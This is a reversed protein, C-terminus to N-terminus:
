RAISEEGARNRGMAERDIRDTATLLLQLLPERRERWQEASTSLSVAAYDGSAIPFRVAAALGCRGLVAEEEDLAYGRERTLALDRALDDPTTLSRPTMRPLEHSTLVEELEENSLRALLAKGIAVCNAPVRGGVNSITVYASRGIYKLLYLVEMGRLVGLNATEGADNALQQIVQRVVDLFQAQSLYAAGLEFSEIGLRYRGDAEREMLQQAELERVVRFVLSKTRPLAREIEALSLPTTSRALLRLIEGACAAAPAM